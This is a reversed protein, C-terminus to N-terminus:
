KHLYSRSVETIVVILFIVFIVTIINWIISASVIFINLKRILIAIILFYAFIQSCTGSFSLRQKQPKLIFFINFVSPMMIGSDGDSIRLHAFFGRMWFFIFVFVGALLQISLSM